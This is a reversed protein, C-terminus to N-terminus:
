PGVRQKWYVKAVQQLHDRMMREARDPDGARIAALIQQHARYALDQQRAAKLTIHRQETLWGIMAEHIAEFIPNGAIRAIAHHFEVDTREFAAADGLSAKNAALAQDLADIDVNGANAAAYRVLGVEFVLRAQQFQRVGDAASLLHRAAGSLAEVVVQRTPQTVRARGGHRVSILGLKQLAFLAERVAPRGVGFRAMLERESPLVDGVAYLGSHIEAELKAAIEEYLRRRRVHDPSDLKTNPMSTM